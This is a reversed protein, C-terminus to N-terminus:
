MPSGAICQKRAQRAANEAEKRETGKKTKAAKLAARYDETCRKIAAAHEASHKTKPKGPAALASVSLVMAMPIATLCFIKRM